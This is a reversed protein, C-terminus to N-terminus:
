IRHLYTGTDITFHEKSCLTIDDLTSCRDKEIQVQVSGGKLISQKASMQILVIFLDSHQYIKIYTCM